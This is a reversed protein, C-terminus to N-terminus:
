VIRISIESLITSTPQRRQLHGPLVGDMHGPLVGDMHEPLVGDMHEPLVGDMHGPLVGDMHGGDIRGPLVGDLARVFDWGHCSVMRMRGPFNGPCFMSTVGM